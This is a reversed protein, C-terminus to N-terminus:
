QGFKVKPPTYNNGHRIMIRDSDFSGDAAWHGECVVPVKDDFLTPLDGVHTVEVTKKGDTVEFDVGRRTETSSGPVVAGALRFRADGQSPRSKVAEYDTRYYVVNGSLAVGLVVIAIVAAACLSLAIVSRRKAPTM